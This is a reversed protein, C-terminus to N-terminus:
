QSEMVRGVAFCRLVADNDPFSHLVLEPLSKSMLLSLSEVLGTSLGLWTSSGACSWLSSASIVWLGWWGYDPCPFWIEIISLWVAQKKFSAILTAEFFAAWMWVSLCKAYSLNELLGAGQISQKWVARRCCCFSVHSETWYTRWSSRFKTVKYKGICFCPIVMM